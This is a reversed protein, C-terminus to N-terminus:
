IKQKMRRKQDESNLHNTKDHTIKNNKIKMINYLFKFIFM